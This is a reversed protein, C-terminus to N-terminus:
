TKTEEEQEKALAYLKDGLWPPIVVWAAHGRPCPFGKFKNSDGNWRILIRDEEGWRGKAVSLDNEGLDIIASVDSLIYKPSVANNPNLYVM